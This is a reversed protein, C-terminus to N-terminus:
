IDAATIPAKLNVYKKLTFMKSFAAFHIATNIEYDNMANWM